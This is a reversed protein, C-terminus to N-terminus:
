GACSLATVDTTAVDDAHLAFIVNDMFGAYMVYRSVALHPGLWPWLYCAHNKLYAYLYIFLCVSVNLEGLDRSPCPLCCSPVCLEDCGQALQECRYTEQRIVGVIIVLEDCGQALQECKYTDHRIDRV